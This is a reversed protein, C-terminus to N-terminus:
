GRRGASGGPHIRASSSSRSPAAVATSCPHTAGPASGSDASARSRRTGTASRSAADSAKVRGAKPPVVRGSDGVTASGAGVQRGSGVEVGAVDLGQRGVPDAAGVVHGRM